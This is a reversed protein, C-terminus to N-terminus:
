VGMGERYGGSWRRGVAVREACALGCMMAVWGVVSCVMAALVVL